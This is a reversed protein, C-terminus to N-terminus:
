REGNQAFAVTAIGERAAESRLAQAIKAKGSLFAAFTANPVWLTLEGGTTRGGGRRNQLGVPVLPRLWDRAATDGVQAELRSLVKAWV